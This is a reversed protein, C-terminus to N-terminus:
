RISQSADRLCDFLFCLRRSVTLIALTSFRLLQCRPQRYREQMWLYLALEFPTMNTVRKQVQLSQPEM